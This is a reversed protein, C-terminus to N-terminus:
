LQCYKQYVAWPLARIQQMVAETLQPVCSASAQLSYARLGSLELSANSVAIM